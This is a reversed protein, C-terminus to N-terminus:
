EMLVPPCGFKEAYDAAETLARAQSRVQEVGLIRDRHVAYVKIGLGSAEVRHTRGATSMGDKGFDFEQWEEIRGTKKPRGM